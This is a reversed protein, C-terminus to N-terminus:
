QTRRIIENIKNEIEFIMDLLDGIDVQGNTWLDLEEIKEEVTKTEETQKTLM